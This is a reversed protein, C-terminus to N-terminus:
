YDNEILHDEISIDAEGDISDEYRYYLGTFSAVIVALMMGGSIFEFITKVIFYTLPVSRMLQAIQQLLASLIFFGLMVGFGIVAMKLIRGTNLHELSFAIADKISRNGLTYAPFSLFFKLGIFFSIPMLTILLFPSTAAGILIALIMAGWIVLANLVCLGILGFLKGSLSEKLSKVVDIKSEKIENNAIRFSFFYSWSMVLFFLIIGIMFYLLTEPQLVKEKLEMIWDMMADQDLMVTSYYETFEEINNYGLFKLFGFTMLKTFAFYLVYGIFIPQWIAKILEVIGSFIDEKFQQQYQNM